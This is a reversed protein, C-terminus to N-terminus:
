AAELVRWASTKLLDQQIRSVLRGPAPCRMGVGLTVAIKRIGTDGKKLAKRIAAETKEDIM